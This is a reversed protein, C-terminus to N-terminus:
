PKLGQGQQQGAQLPALRDRWIIPSQVFACELAQTTQWDTLQCPQRGDLM